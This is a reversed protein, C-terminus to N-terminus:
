ERAFCPVPVSPEARTDDVPTAAAADVATEVADRPAEAVPARRLRYAPIGIEALYALRRSM